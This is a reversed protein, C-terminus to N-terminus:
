PSDRTLRPKAQVDLRRKIHSIWILIYSFRNTQPKPNPPVKTKNTQQSRTKQEDKPTKSKSKKPNSIFIHVFIMLISFTPTRTKSCAVKNICLEINKTTKKQLHHSRQNYIKLILKYIMDFAFLIRLWCLLWIYYNLHFRHFWWFSLIIPPPWHFTFFPNHNPLLISFLPITYDM